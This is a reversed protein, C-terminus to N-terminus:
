SGVIFGSSEPQNFFFDFKTYIGILTKQTRTKQRSTSHTSLLLIIENTILSNLHPPPLNKSHEECEFSRLLNVNRHLAVPPQLILVLLYLVFGPKYQYTYWYQFCCVRLCSVFCSVSFALMGGSYSM